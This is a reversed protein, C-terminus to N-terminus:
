GSFLLWSVVWGATNIILNFPIGGYEGNTFDIKTQNKVMFTDCSLEAVSGPGIVWPTTASESMTM